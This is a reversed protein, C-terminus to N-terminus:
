STPKTKRRTKGLLVAYGCGCEYMSGKLKLTQRHYPSGCAPCDLSKPRPKL